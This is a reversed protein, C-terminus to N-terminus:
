ADDGARSALWRGNLGDIEGQVFNFFDRMEALRRAGPTAKGVAEIGEDALDAFTKYVGMKTVASLWWSEEPVRYRDRRSRPVPERIIMGVHTLYRVAGSIAAPSVGLREGIEAATLADDAIMVTFLVRAAMRPFGWEAFAMAMREVFLNAAETDRGNQGPDPM